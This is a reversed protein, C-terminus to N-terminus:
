GLWLIFVVDFNPGNSHLSTFDVLNWKLIGTIKQEKTKPRAGSGGGASTEAATEAGSSTTSSM